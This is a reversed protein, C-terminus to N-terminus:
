EAGGLAANVQAWTIPDPVVAVAKLGAAAAATIVGASALADLQAQVIPDGFDLTGAKVMVMAWKISSNGASAADLADLTTAGDTPGLARLVTGIGGLTSAVKTRGASLAAAVGADDRAAVLAAFTADAAARQAILSRLESNTM